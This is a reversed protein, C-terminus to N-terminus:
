RQPRAIGRARRHDDNRWPRPHTGRGHVLAYRDVSLTEGSGGILQGFALNRLAEHQTLALVSQALFIGAAITAAACAVMTLWRPTASDFLSLGIWPLTCTLDAGPVPVVTMPPTGTVASLCTRTQAHSTEVTDWDLPPAVLLDAHAWGPQRVSPPVDM